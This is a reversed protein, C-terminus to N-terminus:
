NIASAPPCPRRLINLLSNANEIEDYSLARSRAAWGIAALRQRGESTGLLRKLEEAVGATQSMDSLLLEDRTASLFDAAGIEQHHVLSPCGFAGAEVITMGYAENLAPHVNLISKSMVDSIATVDLFEHLQAAPCAARLRSHIRDGFAKDAVAGVMLPIIGHAELWEASLAEICEVFAEINKEPVVRVCCLLYERCQEGCDVSRQARVRLDERLAPLLVHPPIGFASHLKRADSNCLCIYCQEKSLALASREQELYFMKDAETNSTNDFYVRYNYYVYPAGAVAPVSALLAEYAANAEWDVGVVVDIGGSMFHTLADQVFESKVGGAFEAWSSTRGHLKWVPVPICVGTVPKGEWGTTAANIMASSADNASRVAKDDSAPYACLVCVEAGLKALARVFSQTATGNGSFPEVFELSVYLVRM